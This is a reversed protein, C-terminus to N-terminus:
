TKIKIADADSDIVLIYNEDTTAKELTVWIYTDYTKAEIADPDLYLVPQTEFDKKPVFSYKKETSTAVEMPGGWAWLGGVLDAGNDFQQPMHILLSWGPLLIDLWDFPGTSERLGWCIFLDRAPGTYTFSVKSLTVKDGLYIAPPKRLALYLGLGALGAGAGVAVVTTTDIKGETTEIKREAM